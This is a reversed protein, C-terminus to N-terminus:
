RVWATYRQRRRKGHRDTTRPARDQEAVASALQGLWADVTRGERGAAQEIAAMLQRSVRVDVHATAGEGVDPTGSGPATGSSPGSSSPTVVFDPEDGHFPLEVSGPVLDRSIEDAAAVLADRLALRIASELQAARVGADESDSRALAAFERGLRDVFPSVDM